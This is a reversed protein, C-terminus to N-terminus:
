KKGRAKKNKKTLLFFLGFGIGASLLPNQKVWTIISGDSAPTDTEAAFTQEQSEIKYQTDCDICDEPLYDPTLTMVPESVPLSYKPMVIGPDGGAYYDNVPSPSIYNGGGGDQDLSTTFVENQMDQIYGIKSM